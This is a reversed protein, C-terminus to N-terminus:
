LDSCFPYMAKLLGAHQILNIMQADINWINLIAAQIIHATTMNANRSGTVDLDLYTLTFKSALHFEVGKNNSVLHTSEESNTYM